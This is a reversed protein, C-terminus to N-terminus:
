WSAQWRQWPCFIVVWGRSISRAIGPTSSLSHGSAVIHQPLAPTYESVWGFDSDDGSRIRAALQLDLLPKRIASAIRLSM